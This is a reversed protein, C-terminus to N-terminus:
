FFDYGRINKYADFTLFGASGGASPSYIMNRDYKNIQTMTRRLAPAKPYNKVDKFAFAIAHFDQVDNYAPSNANINKIQSKLAERRNIVEQSWGYPVTQEIQELETTLPNLTKLHTSIKNYMSRTMPKNQCYSLGCYSDYVKPAVNVPTTPLDEFKIIPPQKFNLSKDTQANVHAAANKDFRLLQPPTSMSTSIPAAAAIVVSAKAMSRTQVMAVVGTQITCIFIVLIFSILKHM